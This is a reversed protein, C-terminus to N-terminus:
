GRPAPVGDAVGLMKKTPYIVSVHQGCTSNRMHSQFFQQTSEQLFIDYMALMRTKAFLPVIFSSKTVEDERITVGYICVSSFDATLRSLFFNSAAAKM